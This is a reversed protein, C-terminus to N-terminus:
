KDRSGGGFFGKLGKVANDLSKGLGGGSGKDGGDAGAATTGTVAEADFWAVENSMLPIAAAYQLGQEIGMRYEDLKGLERYDPRAKRIDGPGLGRIGITTMRTTEASDNGAIVRKLRALWNVDPNVQVDYSRVWGSHAPSQTVVRYWSGQRQEISVESGNPLATIVASQQDPGSYLVTDVSLTGTGTGTGSAAFVPYLLCLSIVLTIIRGTRMTMITNHRYCCTFHEVIKVSIRM